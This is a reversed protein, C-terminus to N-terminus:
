MRHLCRATNQKCKIAKTIYKTNGNNQRLSTTYYIDNNTYM